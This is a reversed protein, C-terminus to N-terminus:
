KSGGKPKEKKPEPKVKLITDVAQELPVDIKFSGSRGHASSKEAQQFDDMLKAIDIEGESSKFNGNEVAQKRIKM